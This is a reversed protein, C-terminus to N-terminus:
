FPLDNDPLVENETKQKPTYKEMYWKGSKGQKMSINAWGKDNFDLKALDEKNIGISYITGYETDIPKVSGIFVKDM